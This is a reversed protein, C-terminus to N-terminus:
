SITIHPATDAPRSTFLTGGVNVTIIVPVDGAGALSAPLQVNIQDFGPTDSPGVALISTGTIDTTGIRVTVQSATVNHVGTVMIQLVTPVTAGTSDKSTVTFPETTGPSILPNTVNFVVARGGPGNTSTFIDPQAFNLTLTSRIVSGNNNVVVALGSAAALGPPVVFNIQNPAVFYLGAAAGAVSVSVNNLEVPLPPRRGKESACPSSMNACALQASPALTVAPAPPPAPRALGLM